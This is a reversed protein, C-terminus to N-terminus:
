GSSKGFFSKIRRFLGPGVFMLVMIIIATWTGNGLISNLWLTSGMILWFFFMDGTIALIWGTVFGHGAFLAATRGTMPDVGFSILILTFPGPNVGYKSTTKLMSAKFAQQFRGLRGFKKGARSFGHM